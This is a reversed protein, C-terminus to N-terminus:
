SDRNIVKSQKFHGKPDRVELRWWRWILERINVTPSLACALIVKVELTTPAPWPLALVPLPTTPLPTAPTSYNLSLVIVARGRVMLWVSVTILGYHCGLSHKFWLSPQLVKHVSMCSMVASERERQTCVKVSKRENLAYPTIHTSM